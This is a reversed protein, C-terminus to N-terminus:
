QISRNRSCCPDRVVLIPSLDMRRWRCSRCSRRLSVCCNSRNALPLPPQAAGVGSHRVSGAGVRWARVASIISRMKSITPSDRLPPPRPPRASQGYRPRRDGEGVSSPAGHHRLSEDGDDPSSPSGRHGGIRRRGPEACGPSCRAAIRWARGASRARSSRSRSPRRRDRGNQPQHRRGRRSRARPGAADMDPRGCAFVGATCPRPNGLSHPWLRLGVDESGSDGIM